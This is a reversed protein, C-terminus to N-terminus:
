IQLRLIQKLQLTRFSLFPCLKDKVHEFQILVHLKAHPTRMVTRFLDEDSGGVTPLHQSRREHWM